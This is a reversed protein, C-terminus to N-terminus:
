RSQQTSHIDYTEQKEVPTNCLKSEHDLSKSKTTSTGMLCEIMKFARRKYAPTLERQVKGTTWWPNFRTIDEPQM